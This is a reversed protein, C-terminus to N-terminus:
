SDAADFAPISRGTVLLVMSAKAHPATDSYRSPGSTLVLSREGGPSRRWWHDDDCLHHHEHENLRERPQGIPPTVEAPL